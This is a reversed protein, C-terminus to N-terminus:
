ASVIIILAIAGRVPKSRRAEGIGDRLTDFFGPEDDSASRDRHETFAAAVAATVVCAAVSALGVALYGGLDLVLGAASMALVVGITGAATARGMIRAYQDAEGCRELEEYILAERAGSMLAGKAGWLVFGVAFAWYSPTTVWLAFGVATLLPGIILLLKRSVADAWVGSPVELILSTGSWIAFLSSIEWVSLGTDSFLLAYVPYLLVFDD